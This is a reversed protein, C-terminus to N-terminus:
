LLKGRPGLSRIFLKYDKYAMKKYLPPKNPAVFEQAPEILIDDKPNYFFALSLREKASNVIVRHEVSKYNGNTLVQIQDGINVIFANPIPYITFWEEGKRVQLGEVRDDPLLVTLAGPDSHPSLGLTLDPQPCRPYFNARMCAGVGGGGLAKHLFDEEVELSISIEKLLLHCLKIVQAGYEEITDRLLTPSAPWKSHNKVMEPLFNLFYYDGWDLIAGKQVGLRSGYGEFSVPSNAYAKKEEMPLYFFERWLERVRAMLEHSVGHNVVQFFGWEKCASGIARRGAEGGQLSGLDIVPVCPGWDPEVDRDLVPREPPPKIYQAPVVQGGELSQVPVIPEPWDQLCDM